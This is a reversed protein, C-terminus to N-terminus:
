SSSLWIVAYWVSTKLLQCTIPDLHRILLNVPNYDIISIFTWDIIRIAPENYWRNFVVRRNFVCVCLCFIIFGRGYNVRTFLITLTNIFRYLFPFWVLLHQETLIISGWIHLGDYQCLRRLLVNDTWLILIQDQSAKFHVPDSITLAAIPFLGFSVHKPMDIPNIRSWVITHRTHVLGYIVRYIHRVRESVSSSLLELM